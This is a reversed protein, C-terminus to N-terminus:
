SELVEEEEGPLSLCYGFSRVTKIVSEKDTSEKLLTRIRNIHVDITREDIQHEKGWVHEIITNRSFISYPANMFLQFIKFETPGLHINRTGRTVRYTALNMALDKHTLIKTQLVPNSKRLLNKIASMVEYPTFPKKVVSVFESDFNYEADQSTLIIFPILLTSVNKIDNILKILKDQDFMDSAVIINPNHAIVAKVIDEYKNCKVTNFWYREIINCIATSLTNDPITVLVKPPLKKVMNVM